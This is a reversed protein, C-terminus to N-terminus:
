TKLQSLAGICGNRHLGWAMIPPDKAFLIGVILNAFKRLFNFFVDGDKKVIDRMKREHRAVAKHIATLLFPWGQCKDSIIKGDVEL